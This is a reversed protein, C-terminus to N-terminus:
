QEPIKIVLMEEMDFVNLSDCFNSFLIHGGQSPDMESLITQVVNLVTGTNMIDGYLKHIIYLLDNQTIIGDRDFDYM